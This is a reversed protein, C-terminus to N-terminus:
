EFFYCSVTKSCVTKLRLLFFCRECCKWLTLLVYKLLTIEMLVKLSNFWDIVKVVTSNKKLYLLLWKSTSELFLQESNSSSIMLLCGRFSENGAFNFARLILYKQFHVLGQTKELFRSSLQLVFCSLLFFM